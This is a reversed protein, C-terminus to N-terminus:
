LNDIIAQRKVDFEEKSVLGDALLENLKLMRERTTPSSSAGAAASGARGGGIAALLVERMSDGEQKKQLRDAAAELAAADRVKQSEVAAANRVREAEVATANRVREAESHNDKRSAARDSIAEKMVEANLEASRRLGEAMEGMADARDRTSVPPQADLAGHLVAVAAVTQPEQQHLWDMYTELDVTQDESILGIFVFYNDEHRHLRKWKLVGDINEVKYGRPWDDSETTAETIPTPNAKYFILEAQDLEWWAKQVVTEMKLRHLAPHGTFGKGTTGGGYGFKKGQVPRGKKNGTSGSTSGRSKDDASAPPPGTGAAPTGQPHKHRKAGRGASGQFARNQADQKSARKAADAAATKEDTEKREQAADCAQILTEVMVEVPTRDKTGGSEGDAHTSRFYPMREQMLSVYDAKKKPSKTPGLWVRRRLNTMDVGLQDALQQWLKTNGFQGRGLFLKEGGQLNLVNLANSLFRDGNTTGMNYNVEVKDPADEEDSAPPADSDSHEAATRAAAVPDVDGDDDFECAEEAEGDDDEDEDEGGEVEPFEEADAYVQDVDEGVEEAEGDDTAGGEDGRSAGFAPAPPQPIPEPSREKNLRPSQRRPSEGPPSVLNVGESDESLDAAGTGCLKRKQLMNLLTDGGGAAGSARGGGASSARGGRNGRGGSGKSSAAGSRVAATAAAASPEVEAAAAALADASAKAGSAAMAGSPLSAAPAESVNGSLSRRRKSPAPDARLRQPKRLPSSCKAPEQGSTEVAAPAAGGHGPADPAQPARSSAGGRALKGRAAPPAVNLKGSKKKSGIPYRIEPEADDDSSMDEISLRGTPMPLVGPMWFPDVQTPPMVATPIWPTIWPGRDLRSSVSFFGDLDVTWPGDQIQKECFGEILPDNKKRHTM